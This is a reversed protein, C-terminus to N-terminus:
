KTDIKVWKKELPYKKVTNFSWVILLWVMGMIRNIKLTDLECDAKLQEYDIEVPVGVWSRGSKYIRARELLLFRAAKRYFFRLIKYKEKDAFFLWMYYNEVLEPYWHKTNLSDNYGWSNLYLIKEVLYTNYYYAYRMMLPYDDLGIGDGQSRFGGIEILKERRYFSGKVSTIMNYLYEEYKVKRLTSYGGGGIIEKSVDINDHIFDLKKYNCALQDINPNEDIIRKMSELYNDKLFDDSHLFSVWTSNSLIVARNWNAFVGMNEENKYYVVRPDNLKRLYIETDTPSKQSAYDDIVLLQYEYSGIQKLASQVARRIFEQPHNYVPLIITLFITKKPKEGLILKTEINDMDHYHDVIKLFDRSRVEELDKETIVPQNEEWM